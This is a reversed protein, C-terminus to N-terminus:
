MELLAQPLVDFGRPERGAALDSIIGDIQGEQRGFPSEPYRLRRVRLAKLTPLAAGKELIALYVLTAWDRGDRRIASLRLARVMRDGGLRRAAWAAASRAGQLQSVDYAPDSLHREVLEAAGGTRAEGIAILVGAREEPPLDTRLLRTKIARVAARSGIEALRRDALRRVDLFPSVSATAWAAVNDGNTELLQLRRVCSDLSDKIVPDSQVAAAAKLDDIPETYDLKVLADGWEAIPTRLSLDGVPERVFTLMASAVRPAVKKVGMGALIERAASAIARRRDSTEAMLTDTAGEGGIAGISQLSRVVAPISDSTLLARLVNLGKTSGIQGIAIIVLAQDFQDGSSLYARFVDLSAEGGMAVIANYFSGRVGTDQEVELRGVMAKYCPEPKWREFTKAVYRREGLIASSLPAVLRECISPEGLRSMADTALARVEPSANALLPELKPLLSPNGVRGLALLTDELKETAAPDLRYADLQKELAPAAAPGILLAMQTVLPLDPVMQTGHTSEGTQMLDMADPTGILALGYLAYRKCAIGFQGGRADAARIAKRLAIEADPGGLRGLSYACFHFTSPDMLDIESAVFPVVDPGIAILRDTVKWFYRPRAEDTKSPTRVDLWIADVQPRVREMAALQAPTPPVTSEQAPVVTSILLFCSVVVAIRPAPGV